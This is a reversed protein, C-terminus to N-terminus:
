ISQLKNINDGIQINHATFSYNNTTIEFSDVKNDVIYFLIGDYKYKQSMVNDMECYYNEMSNTSGFNETVLTVSQGLFVVGNITAENSHIANHSQAKFSYSIILLSCILIIKKM